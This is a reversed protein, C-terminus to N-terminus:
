HKAAGLEKLRGDEILVRRPCAAGVAPDHTIIVVTHGAAHLDGLLAMVERGAASDLNGTPEDALLVPPQGVMARAIAVRQQQGGSLQAPRHDIRAALGVRALSERAMRRRIREPVGRYLLPLEVNELATLGPLLHFGQFVFGVTEGRIRSLSKENMKEVTQGALRYTGSDPTDLCGLLNMLTSKGSGSPGLIAVMEGRAVAFDVGDLARVRQAGLAYEKRINKMEIM